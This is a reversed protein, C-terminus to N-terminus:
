MMVIWSPVEDVEFYIPLTYYEADAPSGAPPQFFITGYYYEDYNINTTRGIDLLQRIQDKDQITMAPEEPYKTDYVPMGPEMM